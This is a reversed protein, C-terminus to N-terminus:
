ADGKKFPIVNSNSTGKIKKREFLKNVSDEKVYFADLVINGDKDFGNEFMTCDNQIYNKDYLYEAITQLVLVAKIEEHQEEETLELWDPKRDVLKRVALSQAEKSLQYSECISFSTPQPVVFRTKKMNGYTENTRFIPFEETLGAKETKEQSTM